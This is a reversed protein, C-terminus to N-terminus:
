RRRETRGGALQRQKRTAWPHLWADRTMLLGIPWGEDGNLWRAQSFAAIIVVVAAGIGLAVDNAPLVSGLVVPLVGALVIVLTIYAMRM